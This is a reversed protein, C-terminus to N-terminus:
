GIETIEGLKAVLEQNELVKKKSFIAKLPFFFHKEEGVEDTYSAKITNTIGM